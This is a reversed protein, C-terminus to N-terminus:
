PGFVAVQLDSSAAGSVPTDVDRGGPLVDPQYVLPGPGAKASAASTKLPSSLIKPSTPYLAARSLAILGITALAATTAVLAPSSFDSTSPM